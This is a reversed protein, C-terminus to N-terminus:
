RLQNPSPLLFDVFNKKELLLRCVLNRGTEHARLHTYSVSVTDLIDMHEETLREYDTDSILFYYNNLSIVRSHRIVELPYLDDLASILKADSENFDEEALSVNRERRM